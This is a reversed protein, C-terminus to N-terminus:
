YSFKRLMLTANATNWIKKLFKVLKGYNKSANPTKQKIVKTAMRICMLTVM